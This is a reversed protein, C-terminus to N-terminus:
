MVFNRGGKRGSGTRISKPGFKKPAYTTMVKNGDPNRNYGLQLRARARNRQDLIDNVDFDELEEDEWINGGTVMYCYYRFTDAFHTRPVDAGDKKDDSEDWIGDPRTKQSMVSRACGGSDYASEPAFVVSVRGLSDMLLKNSLNFTDRRPPNSYKPPTGDMKTPWNVILGPTLSFDYGNSIMYQRVIDWDTSTASSKEANGSADGNITIHGTYDPYMEGFMKMQGRTGGSWCEIEGVCVHMQRNPPAILTIDTILDGENYGPAGERARLEKNEDFYCHEEWVDNWAKKQWITSCGPAVNFDMILSMDLHPDFKHLLQSAFGYQHISSQFSDFIKSSQSAGRLGFVYRDLMKGTYAMSNRKIYQSGVNMKNVHVGFEYMIGLEIPDGDFTPKRSEIVDPLEPEKFNKEEIFGMKPLKLYQWHGEDEPMAAYFVANDAMQGRNRTMPIRFKDYDTDQGEESWFWDIEVGEINQIADYSRVLMYSVIDEALRVIVVNTFPRNNIKVTQFFEAELGVQKCVRYFVPLGNDKAQGFTNSILAGMSGPFKQMQHLAFCAGFHTKSAGKAAIMAIIPGYGTWKHLFAWAKKQPETMRSEDGYPALLPDRYEFTIKQKVSEYASAIDIGKMMDEFNLM